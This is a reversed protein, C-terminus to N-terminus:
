VFLLKSYSFYSMEFITMFLHKYNFDLTTTITKSQGRSHKRCRGWAETLHNKLAVIYLLVFYTDHVVFSYLSAKRLWCIANSQKEKERKSLKFSWCDSKGLIKQQPGSHLLLKGLMSYFILAHIDSVPQREKQCVCICM